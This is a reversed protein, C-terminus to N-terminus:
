ELDDSEESTDPLESTLQQDKQTHRHEQIKDRLKRLQREAKDCAADIAAPLKDASEKADVHIHNKAQIILEAIMHRKEIDLIVHVHEIRPFEKLMVGCRDKAYARVDDALSMHRATIEIPM